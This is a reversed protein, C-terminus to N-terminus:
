NNSQFSKVELVSASACPVSKAPVVCRRTRAWCWRAARKVAPATARHWKQVLRRIYALPVAVQGLTASLLRALEPSTAALLIPLFFM